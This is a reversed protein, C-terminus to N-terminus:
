RSQPLGPELPVEGRITTRTKSSPTSPSYFPIMQRMRTGRARMTRTRTPPPKSGRRKRGSYIASLLTSDPTMSILLTPPRCNPFPSFPPLGTLYEVREVVTERTLYLQKDYIGTSIGQDLWLTDSEHLGDVVFPQPPVATHVSAHGKIGSSPLPTM